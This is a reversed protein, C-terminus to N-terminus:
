NDPQTVPCHKLQGTTYGSLVQITRNRLRTARSHCPQVVQCILSGSACGRPFHWGSRYRPQGTACGPLAQTTRNRLQTASSGPTTRNRLRTASSNDPQTVPYSKIMLPLTACSPFDIGVYPTSCTGYEM